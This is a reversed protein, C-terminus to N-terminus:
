QGGGGGGVQALWCAVVHSDSVTTREPRDRWCQDIALDCRPAFPCGEIETLASAVNGRIVALPQRRERAGPLAALLGSTYPHRPQPVVESVPGSEM